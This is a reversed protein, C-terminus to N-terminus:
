LNTTQNIGYSLNTAQNQFTHSPIQIILLRSQIAIRSQPHIQPSHMKDILNGDMCLFSLLSIMLLAHNGADVLIRAVDVFGEETAKHLPTEGESDM